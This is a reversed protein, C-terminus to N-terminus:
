NHSIKSSYKPPSGGAMHALYAEVDVLRWRVTKPGLRLPPPFRGQGAEAQAALRWCTRQHVGLASALEKVTLLRLRQIM